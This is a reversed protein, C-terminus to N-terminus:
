APAEGPIFAFRWTWPLEAQWDELFDDQNTYRDRPLSRVSLQCELRPKHFPWPALSYVDEDARSFVLTKKGGACPVEGIQETGPLDQCVFLSLLDLARLLYSMRKQTGQDALASYEPAQVLRATIQRQLEDQRLLFQRIQEEAEPTHKSQDHHMRFIRCAHRSIMLSGLFSTGALHRIGKEWIDIHEGPPMDLFNFPLGTAPDLEPAAEWELYGIDHESAGQLFEEVLPSGMQGLPHEWAWERGLQGSLWSHAHQSIAEVRGKRRRLIMGGIYFSEGALGAFRALFGAV